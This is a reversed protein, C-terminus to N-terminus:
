WDRRVMDLGKIEKKNYSNPDNLDEYVLAAYKKKKLLLLSRFVGDTEIELCKYRKNVDSKIKEGIRLSEKLDDSGTAIMISDTDGYIVNYGLMTAVDVTAKLADRGKRTILAAIAKAFFRSSSFGLCGYM